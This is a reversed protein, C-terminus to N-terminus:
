KVKPKWANELEEVMDNRAKDSDAKPTGDENKPQEGLKATDENGKDDAKKQAELRELAADFRAQVYVEDKEDLKAAEPSVKLIVQRQIDIDKMGDKVEVGALQAADLLAIRQAVMEDLKPADIMTEAKKKAQDAEDKFSDREAELASKDKKLQDNESIMGDAKKQMDVVAAQATTMAKIVEAEAEYEVGDIKIKKMIENKRGEGLKHEMAKKKKIDDADQKLVMVGNWGDMRIKAADGARAVDVIAVHNYRINRQIADFPVGNWVGSTKEIDSTYGCSVARKGARVDEIADKAAIRVSAIVHGEFPDIDVNDGLHGVSLKKVNEADLAEKPHGNTVPQSKLTLLSAPDFVEAAPRLEWVVKGEDEVYPYVGVTTVVARGDLYGEPTTEFRSDGFFSFFDIFDLRSQGSTLEIGDKKKNGVDGADGAKKTM